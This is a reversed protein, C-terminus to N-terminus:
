LQLITVIRSRGRGEGGRDAEKKNVGQRLSETRVACAFIFFLLLFFSTDITADIEVRIKLTFEHFTLFEFSIREGEM